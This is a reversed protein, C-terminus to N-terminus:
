LTYRENKIIDENLPIERKKPGTESVLVSVSVSETNISICINEPDITNLDNLRIETNCQEGDHHVNV